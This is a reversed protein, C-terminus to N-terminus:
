AVAVTVCWVSLRQCEHLMGAYKDSQDKLDKLISFIAGIVPCHKGAALIGNLTASTAEALFTSDFMATKLAHAAAPLELDAGTMSKASAALVEFRGPQVDEEPKALQSMGLEVTVSALDSVTTANLHELKKCANRCPQVNEEPETSQSM